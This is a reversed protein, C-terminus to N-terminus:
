NQWRDVEEKIKSDVVRKATKYAKEGKNVEFPLELSISIKVSNFDGLNLTRSVGYSVSGIMVNSDFEVEVPDGGIDEESIVKGRKKHVESGETFQVKTAM